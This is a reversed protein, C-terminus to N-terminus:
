GRRRPRAVVLSGGLEKLLRKSGVVDWGRHCVRAGVQNLLVLRLREALHPAAACLDAGLPHNDVHIACLAVLPRRRALPPSHRHRWLWNRRHLWLARVCVVVPLMRGDVVPSVGAEAAAHVGEQRGERGCDDVPRAVTPPVHPVLDQLLDLAVPGHEIEAAASAEAGRGAGDADVCRLFHDVDSAEPVRALEEAHTVRLAVALGEREVDHRDHKRRVLHRLRRPPAHEAVRRADRALIHQDGVDVWRVLQQQQLVRQTLRLRRREERALRVDRGIELPHLLVDLADDVHAAAPAEGGEFM